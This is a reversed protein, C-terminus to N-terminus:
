YTFIYYFIYSLSKYVFLIFINSMKIKMTVVMQYLLLITYYYYTYNYRLPMNRIFIINELVYATLLELVKKEDHCKLLM